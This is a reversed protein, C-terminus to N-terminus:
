GRQTPSLSRSEGDDIAAPRSSARRTRARQRLRSHPFLSSPYRYRHSRVVFANLSLIKSVLPKPSAYVGVDIPGLPWTYATLLATSNAIPCYRRWFPAM